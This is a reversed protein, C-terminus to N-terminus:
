SSMWSLQKTLVGLLDCRKWLPCCNLTSCFNLGSFLPSSNAMQLERTVKLLGSWHITPAPVQNCAALFLTIAFSLKHSHFSSSVLATEHLSTCPSVVIDISSQSNSSHACRKQPWLSTAKSFSLSRVSSSLLPPLLVPLPPLAYLPSTKAFFLFRM